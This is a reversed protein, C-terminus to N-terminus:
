PPRAPGPRPRHDEHGIHSVPDPVDGPLSVFLEDSLRFLRDRLDGARLEDQAIHRQLEFRHTRHTLVVGKAQLGRTLLETQQLTGRHNHGSKTM